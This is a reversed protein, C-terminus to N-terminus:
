LRDCYPADAPATCHYGTPCLYNACPDRTPPSAPGPSTAVCRPRATERPAGHDYSPGRVTECRTTPPCVAAACPDAETSTDVTGTPRIPETTPPPPSSTACATLASFLALLLLPSRTPTM